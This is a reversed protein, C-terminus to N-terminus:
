AAAEQELLRRGIVEAVQPVVANGLARLRDVRYPVGHAVRGVGPESSWWGSRETAALQARVAVSWRQELRGADDTDGVHQPGGCDGPRGWGLGEQESTRLRSREPQGEPDAVDAGSPRPEHRGARLGDDQGRGSGPHAVTRRQQPWALIFVRDRLHPAGVAAAPVCDWEADYGSEALDGLVRGMGRALLAPVNEVVVYAPRLSRIARLYESWLGSREGDLGAGRGAISIDQCPFGGCLVEVPEVQAWDVATVDEYRIADPWHRELVRRCFPNIEVQWVTRGVGARELGLDLGGIGSFLSGIRV